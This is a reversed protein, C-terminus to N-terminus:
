EKLALLTELYPTVQWYQKLAKYEAAFQPEGVPATKVARIMLNRATHATSVFEIVDTRYGMMRLILARFSDTLIDGLREKMIGHRMVPDFLAPTPQQNLQAQLHHHCCPASFIYRSNNKIGQALADDTATDCAHLAIVM